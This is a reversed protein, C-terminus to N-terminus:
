AERLSLMALAFDAHAFAVEEASHPGDVRFWSAVGMGMDLIAYSALRDAAVTFTGSRVGQAIVGRLGSEYRRRLRLVRDRHPQELNGIERNGVFAQERHTAHFRVHAEVIRRLQQVVGGGARRAAAQDAVLATMTDIMIKALLEQKSTVHRYLSPGRIGLEAGIDAMTTARYGRAAFLRLASRYVADADVGASRFPEAGPSKIAAARDGDAERGYM